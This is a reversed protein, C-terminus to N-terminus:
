EAASPEAPVQSTTELNKWIHRGDIRTFLDSARPLWQSLGRPHRSERSGSIELDTGSDRPPMSM